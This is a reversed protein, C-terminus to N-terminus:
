RSAARQTDATLRTPGALGLGWAMAVFLATAPDLWLSETAGALLTVVVAVLVFDSGPRAQRFIRYSRTLLVGIIASLAILGLMGQKFLVGLYHSHSGLPPREPPAADPSPAPAPTPVPTPTPTPLPTRAPPPTPRWDRETGWGVLPRRQWENITREYLGSRGELSRTTAIELAPQLAGSALAFIMVAVAASLWIAFRGGRLPIHITIAGQARRRIFWVVILGVILALIPGRTTSALLAALVVVGAAGLVVRRKPFWQYAAAILPITVAQAVAQSTSFLFLGKPRLFERGLFYSEEGISRQVLSLRGLGTGAIEPPVLPGIPTSFRLPLEFIFSLLSLASSAVVFAIFFFVLVQRDAERRSYAVVGLLALFFSSVIAIERALTLWRFGQAGLVGSIVVTAIFVLGLSFALRDHGIRLAGLGLFGGIALWAAQDLGLVWWVPVLSGMGIAVYFPLNGRERAEIVSPM